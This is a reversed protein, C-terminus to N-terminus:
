GILRSVRCVDIDRLWWQLESFYGDVKGVVVRASKRVGRGNAHADNLTIQHPYWEASSRKLADHEFQGSSSIGIDVIDPRDGGTRQVTRKDGPVQQERCPPDGLV